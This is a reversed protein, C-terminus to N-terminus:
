GYLYNLMAGAYPTAWLLMAALVVAFAVAFASAALVFDAAGTSDQMDNEGILAAFGIGSSM